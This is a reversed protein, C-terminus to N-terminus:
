VPCKTHYSGVGFQWVAKSGAAMTKGCKACEAEAPLNILNAKDPLNAETIEEVDSVKEAAPEEVVPTEEVVPVEPTIDRLDLASAIDNLSM